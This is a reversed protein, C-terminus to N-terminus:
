RISHEASFLLPKWMEPLLPAAFYCGRPFWTETRLFDKGLNLLMSIEDNTLAVAGVPTSM